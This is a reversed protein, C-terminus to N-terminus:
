VLGSPRPSSNDWDWPHVWTLKELYEQRKVSAQAYDRTRNDAVILNLQEGIRFTSSAKWEPVRYVKGNRDVVVPRLNKRLIQKTMTRRGSEFDYTDSKAEFKPFDLSLFRDRDMMFANTRIHPNPYRGFKYFRILYEFPALLYSKLPHNPSQEAGSCVEAAQDREFAQYFQAPLGLMRRTMFRITAEYGATNAAWSGTAGVLGTGPRDLARDFHELWKDALIESFTNLFLLRRSLLVKAAKLYCGVDYGFDDLEISRIPIDTFLARGRALSQQDPFGKFIVHLDHDVGAPHGRYTELFRRVPREGDFFRYLYVVGVDRMATSM